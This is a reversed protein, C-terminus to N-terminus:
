VNQCVKLLTPLDWDAAINYTVTGLKFKPMSEAPAPTGAAAPAASGITPAALGAAGAAQLFGRRTLDPMPTTRRCDGVTPRHSREYLAPSQLHPATPRIMAASAALAM